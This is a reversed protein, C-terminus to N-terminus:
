LCQGPLSAVSPQEHHWPHPFGSLWFLAWRGVSRAVSWGARGALGPFFFFSPARRKLWFPPDRLFLGVWNRAQATAQNPNTQPSSGWEHPLHTLVPGVLCSVTAWGSHTNCGCFVFTLDFPVQLDAYRGGGLSNQVTPTKLRM